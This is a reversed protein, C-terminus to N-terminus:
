KLAPSLITSWARISTEREQELSYRSALSSAFQRARAMVTTQNQEYYRLTVELRHAFELSNDQTVVECFADDLYEVAAEGAYGVVVCGSMAAELPPLGFGEQTCTSMFISTQRLEAAVQRETLGDIPVLTWGQLAGRYRLINIVQCIHNPLKRPMFALTRPKREDDPHFLSTNIGYVVREVVLEPFAFKLCRKSYDSVVAAGIFNSSRYVTRCDDLTIPYRNFTYNHNQNFIAVSLREVSGNLSYGYFEPLVIVDRDDLFHSICGGAVSILVESGRDIAIDAGKRRPVDQAETDGPPRASLRRRHAIPTHHEFWTCRFGELDHLVFAPLGYDSLIQVQRYAQKIGGIPRNNDPLVFFIM